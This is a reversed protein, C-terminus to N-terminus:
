LIDHPHTDSKNKNKVTFTICHLAYLIKLISVEWTCLAVSAVRNVRAINSYFLILYISM